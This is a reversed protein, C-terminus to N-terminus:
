KKFTWRLAKEKTARFITNHKEHPEDSYQWVLNSNPQNKLNQALQQTYPSIDSTSSGAFWLRVTRNQSFNMKNSSKKVLFQNNWWLSPDFAIYDDFLDPQDLLTEIVFLGAVSEGIIGRRANTKYKQNILPILEDAIFSRFHSSGGVKPAIKKDKKVQTFGTLDRKRETNEIGVLIIPIIQDTKILHAITNALHPFDENIGGDLMYLVPYTHPTTSYHEPTWITIVRKENLKKSFIEITQYDPIADQANIHSNAVFLFLIINIFFKIM